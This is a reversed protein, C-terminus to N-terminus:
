TDCSGESIMLIHQNIHYYINGLLFMEQAADEQSRKNDIKILLRTRSLIKKKVNTKNKFFVHKAVNCIGKIDSKMLKICRQIFNIFSYFLQNRLFSFIKSVGFKLVITYKELRALILSCVSLM